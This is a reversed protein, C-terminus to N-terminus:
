HKRKRSQVYLSLGLMFAEMLPPVDGGRRRPEGGPAAAAIRLQELPSDIKPKKQLARAIFLVLGVAFFAGAMILSAGSPGYLAELASWGAASAFGIGAIVFVSGALAMATRRKQWDLRDGIQSVIHLM